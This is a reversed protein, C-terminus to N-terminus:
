DTCHYILEAEKSEWKGMMQGCNSCFCFQIADGKGIGSDEPVYDCDIITTKHSFDNICCRDNCQAYVTKLHDKSKCTPCQM